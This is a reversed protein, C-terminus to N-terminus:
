DHKSLHEDYLREVKAMMGALPFHETIRRQAAAGFRKRLGEDALLVELKEALAAPDSPPVLFGTEGDAVQEISGGINTAIVPLGMCMAEMVVGGFPEPQGSPLVSIDLAAYAPRPDRLEGTFVVSDGIGGEEVIAKMEELHSENGPFPAGVILFKAIRGRQRLLVAARLLVEQGKRVLKIRGFVGVVPGDGLGYEQRFRRGTEADPIVFEEMEMGDQLHLVNFYPPFQEVIPVSSAIIRSSFRHIYQRYVKWFSRFEQFWDRIHWLHPIGALWAAPGPTLMVGTNTHVLGIGREILIRRLQWVSLPLNIFFPIMKWSRFVSRTITSLRPFYIVEAHLRALHEELPGHEPLLVFPTFRTRDLGKLLRLLCRSAGYIDASNHVYLIKAPETRAVPVPASVGLCEDYVRVIKGVMRDLSFHGAVRVRGAAGFRRRLTEDGLLRELKGALEVPDGPEVLYGTEGDIVQEISGGIRTAIVPLGMSMAEMVVGGFPEPQASPLAVVDMAAYAPRPDSLEGTFIVEAELGSASVLKRLDALHSENGPFPAGVILYKARVGRGALLAAAQVLVEQGKRHLKIRGVCGVVLGDGLGHEARFRAGAAPDVGAFEAAEFGNHIVRVKARDCFQAAVPESVAIICRSLHRMWSEYVRWYKVFEQFWDRVHWVHPRSALFAAPAASLITGTNTHVLAINERRLIAWVGFVSRPIKLLFLPLKWSHFVERTIISLRPFIIVPVAMARLETALPGEAPLLVRPDFRARDLARLLRLLSRSAGYLDASNHVYLLRPRM